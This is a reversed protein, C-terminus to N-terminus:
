KHEEIRCVKKEKKLQIGLGILLLLSIIAMFALLVVPRSDGTKPLLAALPVEEDPIMLSALPIEPEDLFAQPVGPDNITTPPNEGSGSGGPTGGGGSSNGSPLAQIRFEWDIKALQEALPCKGNEDLKIDKNLQMIVRIEGSEEPRLYCLPILKRLNGEGDAYEAGTVKGNYLEEGNFLVQMSVNELLEDKLSSQQRPNICMYIKARRNKTTNRVIMQDYYRGGPVMDTFSMFWNNPDVPEGKEDRIPTYSLRNERDYILSLIKDPHGTHDFDDSHAVETELYYVVQEPYVGQRFVEHVAGQTYQVTTATIDMEYRCGDYGYKSSTTTVQRVYEGEETRRYVMDKKTITTELLPNMKVSELFVPSNEKPQIIGMYYLTYNGTEAPEEEVLLWKAGEPANAAEAPSDVYDLGLALGPTQAAGSRLVVVNKKNFVPVAAYQTNGNDDQFTFPVVDETTALPPERRNGEVDKAYINERRKWNQHIVVKALAPVNSEGNEDKVNNSVWAQKQIEIGPQWDDPQTFKETLSTKYQPIKYENGTVLVQTWAAWTGGVSLAALATLGWLIVKGKKM